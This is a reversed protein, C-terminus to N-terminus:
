GNSSDETEEKDNEIGLVNKLINGFDYSMQSRYYDISIDGQSLLAAMHKSHLLVDVWQDISEEMLLNYVFCVKKQSIRHIRDQAQLYDDLSFGRDFFVVHNAVTLTLGEKAAGPTALLVRVGDDKLFKEISRNRADMGMKGHVRRTGYAKLEQALWDVNDTFSTWVIAKEKASSIRRLLDKLVTMKGPDASYSSDILKPNSAVQVLRLLRKLIPEARDETPVGDKVVIARLEDRLQRYLEHQKPEWEATIREYVKEPLSIVGSSKTERVSFASIKEFVRELEGELSQQAAYDDALNNSLDTSAKFAAFDKGLSEGRDLFFVQSWIDYPRNAVPTGTMIVKRKFLPALEFFVETLTSNPNKIKASEDLIVAVDRTKLFLEVRRKESKLVEFHALIVRAPSNFVYFNGRRNQSLLKPKIFTHVSFERQWNALLGKKVVFLVTDVQKKELWYLSLDIAIKTKGLGQEHFIAGYTLEKLANVAEMQYSFADLKADLRPEKRLHIRAM